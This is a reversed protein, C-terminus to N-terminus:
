FIPKPGDFSTAPRPWGDIKVLVKAQAKSPLSALWELAQVSGDDDKYFVV